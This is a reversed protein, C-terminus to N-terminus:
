ARSWALIDMDALVISQGNPARFVHPQFPRGRDRGRYTGRITVVAAQEVTDVFDAGVLAGIKQANTAPEERPPAPPAGFVCLAYYRGVVFSLQKTGDIISRMAAVDLRRMADALPGQQKLAYDLRVPDPELM